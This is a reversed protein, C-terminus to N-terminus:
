RVADRFVAVVRPMAEDFTRYQSRSTEYQEFLDSLAATAVFGLKHQADIEERAATTGHHAAIFRVVVARVVAEYVMTQWQGYGQARMQAQVRAFLAPAIADLEELHATVAGDTLTHAFEHVVNQADALDFRPKGAEDLKYIGIVAYAEQGAPSSFKAAFQGNGNLPAPTVFFTRETTRGFFRDFWAPDGERRLLARLRDVMLGFLPRQAEFFDQVHADRYFARVQDLYPRTRDVPWRSGLGHGPRDFPTREALEPPPTLHVALNMPHFFGNGAAKAERTAQVAPHNRFPAFHAAVAAAYEPYKGTNYESAGALHYLLSFLEIRPDFQVTDVQATAPLALTVAAAIVVTRYTTNKTLRSLHYTRRSNQTL